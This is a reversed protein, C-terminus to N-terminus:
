TGSGRRRGGPAGGGGRGRCSSSDRDGGGGSRGKGGARTAEAGEERSAEQGQGGKRQREALKDRLARAQKLTSSGEAADTAHTNIAARITELDNAAVAKRLAEDAAGEEALKWEQALIGERQVADMTEVKDALKSALKAEQEKAAVKAAAEARDARQTGQKSATAEEITEMTLFRKAEQVLTACRAAADRQEQTRTTEQAGAWTWPTFQLSDESWTQLSGLMKSRLQGHRWFKGDTVTIRYELEGLTFLLVRHNKVQTVVCAVGEMRTENTWQRLRVSYKDDILADVLVDAYVDADANPRDVKFVWPGSGKLRLNTRKTVDSGSLVDVHAICGQEEAMTSGCMRADAFKKYDVQRKLVEEQAAQIRLRYLVVARYKYEAKAKAASSAERVANLQQKLQRGEEVPSPAVDREKGPPAAGASFFAEPSVEDVSQQLKAARAREEEQAAALQKVLQKNLEAEELLSAAREAEVDSYWWASSATGGDNGGHVHSMVEQAQEHGQAAALHILRLAETADQLGGAGQLHMCGLGFEAEANGQAAALLLWRRAEAFNRPVAKGTHYLDALHLQADIDGKEATLRYRLWSSDVSADGSQVDGLLFGIYGEDCLQLPLRRDINQFEPTPGAFRPTSNMAFSMRDGSIAPFLGAEWKSGCGEFALSWAGNRAFWLKGLELDAACGITDGDEWRISWDETGNHWLHGRMGDAGWSAADDGVGLRMSVGGPAFGSTAWGIQPAPGILALTIEYYVKGQLTTSPLAVTGFSSIYCNGEPLEEAPQWAGCITNMKRSLRIVTDDDTPAYIQKGSDLQIQYPVFAGAPFSSQRYFHYVVTGLEWGAIHSCEVRTGVAFRLKTTAIDGSKIYECRGAAALRTMQCPEM